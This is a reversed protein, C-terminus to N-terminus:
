ATPEELPTPESNNTVPMVGGFQELMRAIQTASYGLDEMAQPWPTLGAQFRKIAADTIEAESRIEPDAWIIESDVPIAEEGAFRRALNLAEEFGEGFPLHKREVKKVLGSEASKIADGSPSQGQEILYHRPTRTTVAIHLIKQEIAKIYGSLDTQSFEGFKAEPNEDIWLRDTASFFPEGSEETLSVGLAWRQRHAGFYGAIALLFLFGNIQAQVNVVDALESEGEVLVRPRNRLPIIPVVGIPNEVFAGTELPSWRSERPRARTASLAQPTGIEQERARKAEFKWIGDPLYINARDLGTWEDAWMKLAAARRRYNSGAEYAVVTQSADEIAITPYQDGAWVSLYSVGDILSEVLAAPAQADMGNAQWIRWAESDAPQDDSASLRFGEVRLREETVDVVLRCFNSRSEELLRRFENRLKAEHAPTLFPLPHNGRYYDDYTQLESQRSLLETELGDLWRQADALTSV